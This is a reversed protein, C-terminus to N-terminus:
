GRKRNRRAVLGSVIGKTTGAIKPKLGFSWTAKQLFPSPYGHGVREDVAAIRCIPDIM